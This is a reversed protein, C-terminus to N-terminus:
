KEEFFNLLGEKEFLSKSNKKMFMKEYYIIEKNFKFLVCDFSNYFEKIVDKYKMNLLSNLEEDNTEEILKISVSNDSSYSNSNNRMKIKKKKLINKMKKNLYSNTYEKRILNESFNEYSPAHLIINQLSTHQKIKKNITKMYYQNISTIWRILYNSEKFIYEIEEIKKETFCIVKKKKRKKLLMNNKSAVPLDESQESKENNNKEYIGLNQNDNQSEMINNNQLLGRELFEEGSYNKRFNSFDFSPSDSLDKKISDEDEDYNIM